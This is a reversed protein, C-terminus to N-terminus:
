RGYDRRKLPDGLFDAAANAGQMRMADDRGRDPHHALAAARRAGKILVRISEEPLGAIAPDLGLKAYYGLPDKRVDMPRPGASASLEVVRKRLLGNVRALEAKDETLTKAKKGLDTIDEALTNNKKRAEDMEIRLAAAEDKLRQNEDTLKKIKPDGAPAKESPAGAEEKGFASDLLKRLQEYYAQRDGYLAHMVEDAKKVRFAIAEKTKGALCFKMLESNLMEPGPNSAVINM